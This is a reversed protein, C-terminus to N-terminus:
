GTLDTIRKTRVLGKKELQRAVQILKLQAGGVERLGREIEMAERVQGLVNPKCNSLFRTKIETSLKGIAMGLVNPPATNVLEALELDPLAILDEMTMMFQVIKQTYEPDEAQGVELMKKRRDSPTSEMLEVVARFGGPSKKFRAYVSM